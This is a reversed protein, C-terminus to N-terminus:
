CILRVPSIISPLIQALIQLFFGTALVFAGIATTRRDVTRELLNRLDQKQSEIRGISHDEAVNVTVHIYRDARNSDVELQIEDFENNTEQKIIACLSGYGVDGKQVTISSNLNSIREEMQNVDELSQFPLRAYLRKRYLPFEPAILLLAGIFDLVLGLTSICIFSAIIAVVTLFKLWSPIRQLPNM